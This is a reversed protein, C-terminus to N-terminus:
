SEMVRKVYDSSAHQDLGSGGGETPLPQGRTAWLRQAFTALGLLLSLGMLPAGIRKVVAVDLVLGILFIV